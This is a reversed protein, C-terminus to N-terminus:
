SIRILLDYRIRPYSARIILIILIILVALIFVGGLIISTLFLITFIIGGFEAIFIFSLGYSIFEVNFGSVLESESEVLDCPGRNLESVFVIFIIPLIIVIVIYIFLSIKQEIIFDKL